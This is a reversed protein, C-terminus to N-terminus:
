LHNCILPAWPPSAIFFSSGAVNHVSMNSHQDAEADELMPIYLKVLELADSAMPKTGMDVTAVNKCRM